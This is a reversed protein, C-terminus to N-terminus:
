IPHGINLNNAPMLILRGLVGALYGVSNWMGWKHSKRWTLSSIDLLHPIQIKWCLGASEPIGTSNVLTQQVEGTVLWM